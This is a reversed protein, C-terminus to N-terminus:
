VYHCMKNREHRMGLSHVGVSQDMFNYALGPLAFKSVQLGTKLLPKRRTLLTSYLSCVASRKKAYTVTQATDFCYQPVLTVFILKKWLCQM